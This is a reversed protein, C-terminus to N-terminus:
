DKRIKKVQILYAFVMKLLDLPDSFNFTSKRLHLDPRAYQEVKVFGIELKHLKARVYIEPNVLNANIEPLIQPIVQHRIGRIGCNVDPGKFDIILKSMSKLIKSSIKRSIPEARKVRHGFVVDAGEELRKMFEKVQYIPHQLDGDLVFVFEGKASELAKRCGGSYKQNTSLSILKVISDQQEIVKIIDSTLDTSANDIILIELLNRNGHYYDLAQNVLDGITNEENHAMLCISFTKKSFHGGQSDCTM